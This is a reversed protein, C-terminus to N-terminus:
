KVNVEMAQILQPEQSYDSYLRTSKLRPLLRPTPVFAQVSQLGVICFLLFNTKM